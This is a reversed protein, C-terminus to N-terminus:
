KGSIPKLSQLKHRFVKDPHVSRVASKSDWINGINKQLSAPNDAAFDPSLPKANCKPVAFKIALKAGQLEIIGSWLNTL